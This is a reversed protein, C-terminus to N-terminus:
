IRGGLLDMHTDRSDICKLIQGEFCRHVKPTFGTIFINEDKIRRGTFVYTEDSDPHANPMLLPYLGSQVSEDSDPFELDNEAYGMSVICIASLFCPSFWHFNAM